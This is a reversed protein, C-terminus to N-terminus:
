KHQVQSRVERGKKNLLVSELSKATGSLCIRNSLVQMYQGGGGAPLVPVM